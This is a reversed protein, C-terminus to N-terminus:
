VPNDLNVLDGSTCLLGSVLGFVNLYQFISVNRKGTKTHSVLEGHHACMESICVGYSEWKQHIWEM